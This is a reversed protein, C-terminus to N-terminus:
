QQLMWDSNTNAIKSIKPWEQWKGGNNYKVEIPIQWCQYIRGGNTNVMVAANKEGNSNDM